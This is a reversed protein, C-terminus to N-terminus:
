RADLKLEWFKDAADGDGSLLEIYEKNLRDMYREFRNVTLEKYTGRILYLAILIDASGISAYFVAGALTTVMAFKPNGDARIVPNMVQGFMYFPIGPSIYLFSEKSHRFTEANVTGGFMAIIQNSFILYQQDVINYLAGVLLSVICPVAYQKM